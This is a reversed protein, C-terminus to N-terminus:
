NRACERSVVEEVPPTREKEKKLLETIEWAPLPRHFLYGQGHSCGNGVLFDSQERTEVGEAIVALGLSAAMAIIAQTIAMDDSDAPIDRVFSRDIKLRDIPFQKLYSLSSYATGFDDIAIKFGIEKLANLTSISREPNEMLFTETLEFEVQDSQLGEDGIIDAIHDGLLQDQFQRGSLNISILEPAIGQVLWSQFQACATRIVWRGISLILGTEEAISIFHDPPILGLESHQWRILAEVGIIRGDRMDVQPQYHILFEDNDIAHRLGSELQLRKLANKHMEKEFYQYANGGQQKTRYMAVDANKFLAPVDMGDEPFLSIGISATTYTSHGGLEVPRSISALIKRAILGADESSAMDELIVTFEDGGVRAVTDGPRICEELRHAMEKLLQDGLPHGLTDNILKFRDLDIFMVGVVRDHRRAVLLAQELREHLLVRNPLNTLVDYHALRHIHKESLKKDTIDTFICVYQIVKGQSDVVASTNRWEPYVEGNRRRHWIEGQWVGTQELTKQMTRYFEEDHRGSRLMDVNRGVAAKEEWGTIESFAQNVRLIRGDADTIMIGERSYQFVSSTLQLEKEIRKREEVEKRLRENTLLAKKTSKDLKQLAARFMELAEVLVNMEVSSSVRPMKFSREGVTLRKMIRILANLDQSLLRSFLVALLVMSLAAFSFVLFFSNLSRATDRKLAVFSKAVQGRLSQLLALFHEEMYNFSDELRSLAKVAGGSKGVTELAFNVQRKYNAYDLVLQSALTSAEPHRGIREYENELQREIRSTEVLLLKGAERIDAGQNPRLGAELLDRIRIQNSRMEGFLVMYREASALEFTELRTLQQNQQQANYWFTMAPFLMILVGIIPVVLFKKRLSLRSFINM